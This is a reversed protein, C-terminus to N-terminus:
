HSARETRILRVADEFSFAGGSRGEIRELMEARTPRAAEELLHSLLYEQLSQHSRQARRQLTEHVEPPVNKIQISPM